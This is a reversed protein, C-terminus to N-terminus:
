LKALLEAKKAAYERESVIGRRYLDTLRELRAGIDGEASATDPAPSAAPTAGAEPAGESAGDVVQFDSLRVTGQQSAFALDQGSSQQQSVGSLIHAGTDYLTVTGGQRVALRRSTPFVAYAMDNQGGSSSPSGLEDPWWNRPGGMSGSAAASASSGGELASVEECLRAVRHALDHNFMDGVMIMGGRSWQGMGGLDSHNFQAMHGGGRQLAAFVERAADASFGLGSAIDQLRSDINQGM